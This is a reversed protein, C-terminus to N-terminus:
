CRPPAAARRATSYKALLRHAGATAFEIRGNPALAVIERADGGGVADLAAVAADARRRTMASSDLHALHPLLLDLVLRDRETFEQGRHFLFNKTLAPVGIGAILQDEIGNPHLLETYWELQHLQRRSLFDFNTRAEFCGTRLQLRLNANPRRAALIDARRPLDPRRRDSETSYTDSVIRRNLRDIESFNALECPILRALGQIVPVPFPDDGDVTEAERLFELIAQYDSERLRTTM